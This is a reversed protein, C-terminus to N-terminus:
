PKRARRWMAGVLRIAVLMVLWLVVFAWFPFPHEPWQRNAVYMAAGALAAALVCFQEFRSM